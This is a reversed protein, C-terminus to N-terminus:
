KSANKMAEMAKKMAIKYEAIYMATYLLLTSQNANSDDSREYHIIANSVDEADKFDECKAMINKAIKILSKKHPNDGIM